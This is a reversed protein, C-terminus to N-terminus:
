TQNPMRMAENFSAAGRPVQAGGRAKKEEERAKRAEEREQREEERARMEEEYELGAEIACAAPVCGVPCSGMGLPAQAAENQPASCTNQDTAVLGQSCEVYCKIERKGDSGNKDSCKQVADDDGSPAGCYSTTRESLCVCGVGPVASLYEIKDSEASCELESEVAYVTRGITLFSSQRNVLRLVQGTQATPMAADSSCSAIKALSGCRLGWRRIRHGLATTSPSLQSYREVTVSAKWSPDTVVTSTTGDSYTIRFKALVAAPGGTNSGVLAFVNPGPSLLACARCPATKAAMESTWIWKADDFSLPAPISAQGWVTVASLLTCSYLDGGYPKPYDTGGGISLLELRLFPIRM